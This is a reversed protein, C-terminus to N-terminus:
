PSSDSMPFFSPSAFAIRSTSRGASEWRPLRSVCPLMRAAVLLGVRVDGTFRPSNMRSFRSPVGAGGAGGSTGASSRVAAVFCPAVIRSSIATCRSAGSHAEQWARMSGSPSARSDDGAALAAPAAARTAGVRM